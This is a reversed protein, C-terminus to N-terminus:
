ITRDKGSAEGMKEENMRIQKHNIKLINLIVSTVAIM